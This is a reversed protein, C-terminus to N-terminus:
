GGWAIKKGHDERKAQKFRRGKWHNVTGLTTELLLKRKKRKGNKLENVWCVHRKTDSQITKSEERGGQEQLKTRGSRSVAHCFRNRV